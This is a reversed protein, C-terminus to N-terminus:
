ASVWNSSRSRIMVFVVSVSIFGYWHKPRRHPKRYIRFITARLVTSSLCVKAHRQAEKEENSLEREKVEISYKRALAPAEYYSMQEHEMIFHVANGGKGCSFCKCFSVKPPRCASSPTKENHFPVCGM